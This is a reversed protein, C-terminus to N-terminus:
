LDPRGAFIATEPLAGARRLKEAVAEVKQLIRLLNESAIGAIEGDSWGRRILEEILNPYKSVDELGEPTSPIGDFDSGIGVHERGSLKGIYL